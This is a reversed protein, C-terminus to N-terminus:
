ESPCSYKSIFNTLMPSNFVAQMPDFIYNKAFIGSGELVVISGSVPRNDASNGDIDGAHTAVIRQGLGFSKKGM